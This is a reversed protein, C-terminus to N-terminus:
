YTPVFSGHLFLPVGVGLKLIALPSSINSANFIYVLANGTDIAYGYSVVYGDDERTPQPAPVFLPASLHIHKDADSYSTAQKTAFDIKQLSDLYLGNHSFSNTYAYRFDASAAFEENIAALEFPRTIANLETEDEIRVRVDSLDSLDIHLAAIGGFMDEGISVNEIKFLNAMKWELEARTETPFRPLRAIIQGDGYDFGHIWHWFSVAEFRKKAILELSFKDLVFVYSGLEPRWRQYNGFSDTGLVVSKLIDTVSMVFPSVVIVVFRETVLLDHVLCNYPLALSNQAIFPSGETEAIAFVNLTFTTSPPWSAISLGHNILVNANLAENWYLKPHASFFEFPRLQSGFTFASSHRLTSLSDADLEIPQGGECLSLLKGNFFLLNTNSPSTPPHLANLYWKSSQTWAGRVKFYTTENGQTIFRPTEVFKSTFTPTAGDGPFRLLTAMGDGDFWHDYYLKENLKVRGIGHQYLSGRIDKPVAGFIVTPSIAHQDTATDAQRKWASKETCQANTADEEAFMIPAVSPTHLLLTLAKYLTM